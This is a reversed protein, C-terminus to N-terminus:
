EAGQFRPWLEVADGEACVLVDGDHGISLGDKQEIGDYPISLLFEKRCGHTTGPDQREGYDIKTPKCRATEHHGGQEEVDDLLMYFRDQSLRYNM